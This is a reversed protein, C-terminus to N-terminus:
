NSRISGVIADFESLNREFENEDASLTVTYVLDGKQFIVDIARVVNPIEMGPLLIAYVYDLRITELADIEYPSFSIVHYLPYSSERQSQLHEMFDEMGEEAYWRSVTLAVRDNFFSQSQPDFVLLISNPDPKPLWRAPYEMSISANTDTFGVTRAEIGEKMFWGVVLCALVFVIVFLDWSKRRSAM